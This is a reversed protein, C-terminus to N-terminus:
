IHYCPISIQRDKGSDEQWKSISVDYNEPFFVDYTPNMPQEITWFVTMDWVLPIHRMCVPLDVIDKGVRRGPGIPM